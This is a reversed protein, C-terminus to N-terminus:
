ATVQKGNATPMTVADVISDRAAEPVHDDGEEVARYCSLLYQRYLRGARCDCLTIRDHKAQYMRVLYLPAAAVNPDPAQGTEASKVVGFRCKPCGYAWLPASANEIDKGEYHNQLRRRGQELVASVVPKPTVRQM